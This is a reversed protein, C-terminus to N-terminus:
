YFSGPKDALSKYGVFYLFRETNFIPISYNQAQQQVQLYRDHRQVANDYRDQALPDVGMEEFTPKRPVIPEQGLVVYDTEISVNEVVAGGWKNILAKIKEPGDIDAFTDGDLDFDGAVAFNNTKNKDWILNIITDNLIIPTKIDDEIIRAASITDGVNYIEIQAKGKGDKPIPAHKDYVSFTLGQYVRDKIGIDIHVIKSQDDILLIEGDPQYAAISSDPPPAINDLQEQADSLREQALQFEAEVKMLQQNLNKNLTQIEELRAMLTQVQEDTSQQMLSKLEDYNKRIDEIQQQYKEKEALLVQEKEISATIADDYLKQLENLTNQLENASQRTNAFNNKLQEIAWILGTINPDTVQIYNQSTLEELVTKFKTNADAVKAEASRQEPLGGLILYVMEDLYSVMKGLYTETRQKDGIIQGRNLWENNTTLEQNQERLSVSEQNLKDARLYFVIAGVLAFLFLVFFVIMSYMMTNAPQRKGAPM